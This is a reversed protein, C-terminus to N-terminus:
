HRSTGNEGATLSETEDRPARQPLVRVLTMGGVVEGAPDRIAAHASEFVESRGLVGEAPLGVRIAGNEPALGEEEDSPGRGDAPPFLEVATRGLADTRPRGLLRELAANWVRCHGDRDHAFIGAPSGDIVGELFEKERRLVEESQQKEALAARHRGHVEEVERRLAEERQDREGLQARLREHVEEAEGQLRELEQRQAEETRGKEALAARLRDHVERAEEAERGLQEM